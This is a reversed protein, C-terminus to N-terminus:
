SFSTPSPPRPIDAVGELMSVVAKMSPRLPPEYQICWLGVNVMRELELNDVVEDGVVKRLEGADEDLRIKSSIKKYKYVGNRYVLVGSIILITLAFVILSVGVILFHAQREKKSRQPEVGERPSAAFKSVGVKILAINSDSLKRGYTLPLKQKKCKGDKFMAAECNCDELCVEVCEEETPLSLISYPNDEWTTNAVREISYIINGYKSECSETSFNKQCSGSIRSGEGSAAFGPLCQCGIEQDNQFCYRNLGCIGKPSCKENSSVWVVSLNSQNLTFSYVRFIGDIDIRMLYFLEKTSNGGPTFNKINSGKSDLLYLHGDSDLNLSVNGGRGDTFSSFYSYPALDPTDKPYQVLNGDYQMKLRFIGTSQDTESVSSYLEEGALLSQGPLITNTPKRFSQWIIEEDSNYLVFNGSDFMSAKAIPVSTSIISEEQGDASQLMLSGGGTLHLTVNGPVPPSDRNATWVVTKQPIGAIFIGVSFGNGQSYFGFGYFGSPSLWSSNGTPTLSSYLNINLHEQQTTARFNTFLLLFFLMAVM